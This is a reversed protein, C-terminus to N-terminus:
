TIYYNGRNNYGMLVTVASFRLLPRVGDADWIRVTRDSSATYLVGRGAGGWKVVNM